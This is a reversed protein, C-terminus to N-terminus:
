PLGACNRRYEKYSDITKKPVQASCVFFFTGPALRPRWLDLFDLFFVSLALRFCPELFITSVLDLGWDPSM